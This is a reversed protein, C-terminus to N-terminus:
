DCSAGEIDRDDPLGDVSPVDQELGWMGLDPEFGGERIADMLGDWDVERM